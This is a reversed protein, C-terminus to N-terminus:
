QVTQLIASQCKSNINKSMADSHDEFFFEFFFTTLAALAKPHM